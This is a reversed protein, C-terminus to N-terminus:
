QRLPEADAHVAPMGFAPFLAPDGFVVLGAINKATVTLVVIGYARYTGDADRRYAAAAPQGNAATAVMRWEGPSGLGVVATAIADGGSFWTPSPPLELTADRRLLKELAVADSTEFATIYEALVARAQPGTPETVEDASPAAEEIRARARQLMSKVATTTTGLMGAVEAAPFALVERLILV